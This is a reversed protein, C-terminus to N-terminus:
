LKNENEKEKIYLDLAKIGRNAFKIFLVLCYIVFAILVLYILSLLGSIAFLFQHIGAGAFHMTVM